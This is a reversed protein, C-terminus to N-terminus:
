DDESVVFFFYLAYGEQLLGLNLEWCGHLPAEWYGIADDGPIWQRQARQPGASENLSGCLFVYM